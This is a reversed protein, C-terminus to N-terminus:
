AVKKVKKGKPANAREREADNKRAREMKPEAERKAKDWSNQSREAQKAIREDQERDKRHQESNLYDSNAASSDDGEARMWFPVILAKTPAFQYRARKGCHCKVSAPREASAFQRETM